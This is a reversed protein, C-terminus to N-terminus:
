AFEITCGRAYTVFCVVVDTVARAATLVPAGVDAGVSIDCFETPESWCASAGLANLTSSEQSCQALSVRWRDNDLADLGVIGNQGLSRTRM